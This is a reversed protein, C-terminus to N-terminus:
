GREVATHHPGQSLSTANLAVLPFRPAFFLLKNQAAFDPLM